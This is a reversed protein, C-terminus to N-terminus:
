CKEKTRISVLRLKNGAYEKHKACKKTDACLVIHGNEAIAHVEVVSVKNKLETIHICYKSIDRLSLDKKDVLKLFDALSLYYDNKNELVLSYEQDSLETQKKNIEDSLNSIKQIASFVRENSPPKAGFIKEM